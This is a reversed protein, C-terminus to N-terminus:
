ANRLRRDILDDGIRNREIHRAIEEQHDVFYSLADFVQALSVSRQMFFYLYQYHRLIPMSAVSPM